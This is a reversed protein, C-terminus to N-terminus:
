SARDALNPGFELYKRHDIVRSILGARRTIGPNLSTAVSWFNNPSFLCAKRCHHGLLSPNLKVKM